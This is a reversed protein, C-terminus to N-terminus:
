GLAVIEQYLARLVSMAEAEYQMIEKIRSVAEAREAENLLERPQEYPYTQVLKQYIVAIKAYLEHAHVLLTESIGLDLTRVEELFRVAHTRADALPELTLSFQYKELEDGELAKIWGAYGHQGTVYTDHYWEISEQAHTHIVYELADRLALLPHVAAMREAWHLSILRWHDPHSSGPIHRSRCYHCPCYSYGLQDWPIVHDSNEHGNSSHWSHTYYGQLDYGYVISTQNQIDLNKAFVPVGRNLAAKAKNWMEMQLQALEQGEAYRHEGQIDLGINRALNFIESDPPGANPKTYYQDHVLLFAMGTM